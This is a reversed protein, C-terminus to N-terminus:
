SSGLRQFRTQQPLCGEAGSQFPTHSGGQGGCGYTSSKRRRRRPQSDRCVDGTGVLDSTLGKGPVPLLKVEWWEEKTPKTQLSPVDLLQQQFSDVHGSSSSITGLAPQSNIELTDFVSVFVKLHMSMPLVCRYLFLPLLFFSFSLHTCM